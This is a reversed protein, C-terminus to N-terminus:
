LLVRELLRLRNLLGREVRAPCAAPLQLPRDRPDLGLLGRGGLRRLGGLRL